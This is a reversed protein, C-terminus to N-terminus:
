RFRAQLALVSAVYQKTDNFMGHKSVSYQGQYYGAVALKVSPSTAVLARIIAIGAVVNDRPNLLNLHRGVLQSAWEGSSPIVQMAGIANAPSVAQANFGSEQWAFALALSPDVGMQKATSAILAKMQSPSPVPAAMLAAKNKNAQAVVAEPYTYNLFTSPVLQQPTANTSGSAVTSGPIKLTKGAYIISSLSLRNAQLLSQLSIRYRAAIGSLTDGAKIRYSGATAQVPVAAPKSATPKSAAPQSAATGPIKLTRGTYIISSLSLRNAQLLSQLSIRYRAAIGSLTDGAKIRYSGATAQVPAAAPKSAAPKSTAPRPAASGTLKIRQGPYILTMTGFGNLKLVTNMNLRYKAAIASITDGPRVVYSGPVNSAPKLTPVQSAVSAAPIRNTSSQATVATSLTGTSGLSQPLGTPAPAAMAPQALALSSLAIVPLAATGVMVMQKRKTTESKLQRAPTM